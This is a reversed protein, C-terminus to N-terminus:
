VFMRFDFRKPIQISDPDFPRGERNAKAKELELYLDTISTEGERIDAVVLGGERHLLTEARDIEGRRLFAFAYFMTSRGDQHVGNECNEYLRILEDYHEVALAAALAERALSIDAPLMECAEQLSAAWEANRGLLRCGQAFISLAAPTRRLSLAKQIYDEAKKPNGEAVFVAALHLFKSYGDPAKELMKTWESQLMWSLPFDNEEQDPMMGSDLLVQWMKQEPQLAGFDLHRCLPAEKQKERRLAELKGWGSGSLVTKEAPSVAMAHTKQLLTELDNQSIMASLKQSVEDIAGRWDGHVATPEAQLAGYCEVWEWATKPPMPLCEYQTSAIGAQIEAYKGESGNGTLFEQWRAGGKGQGWVFLKRGKLRVTSTQVFGYGNQDLYAMFKRKERGIKWFHDVAIPNNTPYTVDRGDHEPVTVKGVVYNTNVYATDADVVNRYEEGSPVAINTWWYMPVTERNPNVIRMRGYLLPSNEPLFFDMQYVCRRIREFEYMRLVPTGDHLRTQATFLKDCTFPGHGVM